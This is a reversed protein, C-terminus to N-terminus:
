INLQSLIKQATKQGIGPIEMLGQLGLTKLEEASHIGAEKLREIMSETLGPIEALDMEEEAEMTKEYYESEKILEINIGALEQALDKNSEGRGLALGMDKDPIIAVALRDERNYIIRLPKAPTLVRNIFVEPESTYAIVDIREGNLERVVSQIRVGRMGVCAGVPDIRKDISEVAIKSREGPRRAVKKIEVIGDFIEPVEIEFLRILFRNDARSVIIEPRHGRRRRNRQDQEEVDEVMMDPKIVEKILARVSDGRRLKENPISESKPMFMETRDVVIFYGGRTEQHVDGIVIEGVRSKYEQYVKEKEYERIRQMLTQKAINILRRGFNEPNVVEAFLEGEEVEPDIKVAEQLSIQYDPDTVESVVEKEVYIEMDGRDINVIVDFEADEGYKRKMLTMFIDELIDRLDEKDIRKERAIEAAAAVIQSKM